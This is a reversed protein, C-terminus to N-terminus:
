LPKAPCGGVVAGDPIDAVVASGAGVIVDAGITIGPRVASGVGVLTRAGVSVNGALACGPAVHAAEDLRGDHEIVAGSNVIAARGIVAQTGVAARQLVVAGCALVASAAVYAAPHVLPPLTVDLDRLRDAIALRLRNGGIGLVAVSLGEARLRPLVDDDGLIPLGLVRRPAPHKPVPAILGAVEAGAERLAEILVRAHGGAGIVLVRGSAHWSRPDTM